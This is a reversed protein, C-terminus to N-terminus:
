FDVNAVIHNLGYGGGGGGVGVLAARRYSLCLSGIGIHFPQNCSDVWVQMTTIGFGRFVM